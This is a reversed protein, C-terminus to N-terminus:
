YCKEKIRKINNTKGTNEDLEFYVANVELGKDATIHRIPMGKQIKEIAIEKKIGIVSDHPGCMGVDTIYATGNPLIEEDATQVHTHTGLIASVKGDFYFGFTRKEATSEAHFDVIICKPLNEFTNLFLDLSQFPSNVPSMYTQGCLTLLMVPIDTVDHIVYKYGYALEPFNLPKAIYGAKKIFEYENKQDYLHNGSSFIHVGCELMEAIKKESAGKGDTINECNAMCLDVQNKEKFERLFSKVAVRGPRGFIDGLFLVKLLVGLYFYKWRVWM